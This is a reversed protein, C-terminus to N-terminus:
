MAKVTAVEILIYMQVICPLTHNHINCKHYFYANIMSIRAHYTNSFNFFLDYITLASTRTFFCIVYIFCIFIIHHWMPTMNIGFCRILFLSCHAFIGLRIICKWVPFTYQPTTRVTSTDIKRILFCIFVHIFLM